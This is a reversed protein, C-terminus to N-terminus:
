TSLCEFSNKEKESTFMQASLYNILLSTYVCLLCENFYCKTNQDSIFIEKISGRDPCESMTMSVDRVHNITMHVGGIIKHAVAIM